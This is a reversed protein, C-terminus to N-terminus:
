AYCGGFINKHNLRLYIDTGEKVTARIEAIDAASLENEFWESLDEDSIQRVYEDFMLAQSINEPCPLYFDQRFEDYQNSIFECCQKDLVEKISLKNM